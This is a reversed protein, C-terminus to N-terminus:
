VSRRRALGAQEALHALLGNGWFFVNIARDRYEKLFEMAENMQSAQWGAATFWLDGVQVQMEDDNDNEPQPYAHHAGPTKCSDMGFVEFWRFGLILLISLARLGISSGFGGVLYGGHYYREILDKEVDDAMAHWIRVDTDPWSLARDFTEPACQSALWYTCRPAPRTLFRANSPRADVMFMCAPRIGRSLCWEYSGNVAVVKYGRWYLDLLADANEALSPGGCALAIRTEQRAYQRLQPLGRRISSAVNALAAEREVNLGLHKLFGM